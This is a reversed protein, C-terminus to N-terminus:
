HRPYITFYTQLSTLVLFVFAFFMSFAAWPNPFYDHLLRAFSHNWYSHYYLEINHFIEGFKPNVARFPMCDGLQNFFTAAEQHSSLKNQLVGAHQLFAVDEKTNILSDMLAVYSTAIQDGYSKYRELAVLNALRIKKNSHLQLEPIELVGKAFRVDFLTRPTRKKKFKIGAEYLEAAGHIHPPLWKSGWQGAWPNLLTLREKWLPQAVTDIRLEASGVEEQCFGPVILFQHYLDLLHNVKEPWTELCVQSQEGDMLFHAFLSLFTDRTHVIGGGMVMKFLREIIFFPVQNEMLLLDSLITTLGWSEMVVVDCEDDLWKFFLELIFCCDLLLLQVFANRNLGLKERYCRRADIELDLVAEIYAELSVKNNRQLFSKLFRCKHYEMAKLHAGGYYYPGISVLCPEFLNKNAERINTPVRFMTCGEENSGKDEEQWEIINKKILFIQDELPLAM